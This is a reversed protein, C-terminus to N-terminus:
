LAVLHVFGNKKRERNTLEVRKRYVINRNYLHLKDVANDFSCFYVNCKINLVYHVNKERKKNNHTNKGGM